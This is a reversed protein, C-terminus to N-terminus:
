DENNLKFISPYIRELYHGSEYDKGPITYEKIINKYISLNISEINEKNTAFIGNLSKIEKDLTKNKFYYNFYNELPYIKSEIMKHKIGQSTTHEFIRMKPDIFRKKDYKFLFYKDDSTYLGNFKKKNLSAVKKYVKTFNRTRDKMGLFSASLFFNIKNLNYYNKIIHFLYTHYEKGINELNIFEINSHKTNPLIIKPSGKIYITIKQNLPLFNLYDFNENFHSIIFEISNNPILFNIKFKLLKLYYIYKRYSINKHM